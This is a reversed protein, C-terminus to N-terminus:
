RFSGLAEALLQGTLAKLELALGVGLDDRMQELLVVLAIKTLGHSLHRSAEM